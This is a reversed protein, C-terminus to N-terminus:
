ERKIFKNPFKYKLQPVHKRCNDYKSKGIILSKFKFLRHSQDIESLLNIKTVLGRAVYVM